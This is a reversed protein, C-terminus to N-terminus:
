PITFDKFSATEINRGYTTTSSTLTQDLALHIDPGNHAVSVSTWCLLAGNVM